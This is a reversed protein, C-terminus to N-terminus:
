VGSDLIQAIMLNIYIDVVTDQPIVIVNEVHDIIVVALARENPRLLWHEQLADELLPLM